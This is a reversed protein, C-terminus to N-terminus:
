AQEEGDNEGALHLPSIPPSIPSFLPPIPSIYPAQEEGDNEGAILAWEFSIRRPSKPLHPSIYYLTMGTVTM